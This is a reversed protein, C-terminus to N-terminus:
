DLVQDLFEGFAQLLSGAEPHYGSGSSDVKCGWVSNSM